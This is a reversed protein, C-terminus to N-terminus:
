VAGTVAEVQVKGVDVSHDAVAPAPPSVSCLVGGGKVRHSDM